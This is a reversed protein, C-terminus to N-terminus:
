PLDDLKTWGQPDDGCGTGQKCVYFALVPHLEWASMRWCTAAIAGPFACDDNVNLHDNDVLLQGVVKVQKGVAAELRADTWQPHFQARYSPTMEVIMSTRDVQTSAGIEGKRAQGAAIQQAMGPDFGIGLHKDINPEGDLKCNCTEKGGPLHYYLYGVVAHINGEGLDALPVAFHGHNFPDLGAPLKSEKDALDARSLTGAADQTAPLQNKLFNLYADFKPQKNGAVLTCGDPFRAHCDRFDKVQDCAAPKAAAAQAALTHARDAASARDPAAASGLPPQSACGWPLLLALSLPLAFSLPILRISRM